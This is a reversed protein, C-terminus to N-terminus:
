KSSSVKRSHQQPQPHAAPVSGGMTEEHFRESEEPILGLARELRERFVKGSTLRTGDRLVVLYEGQFVSEVERIRHVNVILSRHIRVFDRPDLETDLAALSTRVLHTSGQVHFRVYNGEAEVWDVEVADLFTIHSRNRVAFRKRFAVKPDFSRVWAEVRALLLPAHQLAIRHRIRALVRQFTDRDFPLALHAILQADLMRVDVQDFAAVLVTGPMWETGVAKLIAPADLDGIRAGLFLLDPNHTRIAQVADAGRDYEGVVEFGEEEELLLRIHRQTYPDGDVILVRVKM